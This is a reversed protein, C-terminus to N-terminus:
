ATVSLLSRPAANTGVSQLSAISNGISGAGSSSATAPTQARLSAMLSTMTSIFSDRSVSGTGSPDLSNWISQAGANRFVAPPNKTAFAQDFQSQSISGAGSGDIADFLNSMKQRPSAGAGSAGSMAHMPMAAATGGIASISM